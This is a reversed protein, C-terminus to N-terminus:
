LSIGAASAPKSVENFGVEFFSVVARPTEFVTTKSVCYSPLSCKVPKNMPTAAIVDARQGADNLRLTMATNKGDLLGRPDTLWADLTREDWSNPAACGRTAPSFHRPAPAGATSAPRALAEKHCPASTRSYRRVERWTAPRVRSVPRSRWAPWLCWSVRTLERQWAQLPGAVAPAVRRTAVRLSTHESRTYAIQGSWLASM